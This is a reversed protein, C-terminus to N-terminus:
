VRVNWAEISEVEDQFTSKFPGRAGCTMCVVCWPDPAWGVDPDPDRCETNKVRLSGCFPCALLNSM